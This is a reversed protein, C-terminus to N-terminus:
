ARCRDHVDDVGKKDADDDDAADAYNDRDVKKRRMTLADSRWCNNRLDALVNALGMYEAVAVGDDGYGSGTGGRMSECVVWAAVPPGVRESLSQGLVHMECDHELESWDRGNENEM